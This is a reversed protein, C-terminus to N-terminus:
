EIIERIIALIERIISLVLAAVKLKEGSVTRRNENERSM